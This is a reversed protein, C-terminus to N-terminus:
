LLDHEPTKGDNEQHKREKETAEVQRLLVVTGSSGAVRGQVSSAVWWPATEEGCGV